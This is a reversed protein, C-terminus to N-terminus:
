FQTAEEDPLEFRVNLDPLKIIDGHQLILTDGYLLQTNNVFTKNVREKYLSVLHTFGMSPVRKVEILLHERSLRKNEGTPIQFHATSATAKRGIINKGPKLQYSIGALPIILRGVILNEPKNNQSKGGQGPFCTVSEDENSTVKKFKVFPSTQKCNPCPINRSELGPSLKMRLTASCWPCKVDITQM